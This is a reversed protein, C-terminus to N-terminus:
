NRSCHQNLWQAIDIGGFATGETFSVGPSMTLMSRVSIPVKPSWAGNGAPMFDNCGAPHPAPALAIVPSENTATQASAFGPALSLAIAGLLLWKSANM